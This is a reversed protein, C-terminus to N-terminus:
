AERATGALILSAKIAEWREADQATQERLTSYTLVVLTASEPAKLALQLQCLLRGNQEFRSSVEVARIDQLPGASVRTFPTQRLNTMQPRMADWQKHFEQEFDGGAPIPGRSIVVSVGQADDRLINMSNDLWDGAPLTFSGEHTHYQM